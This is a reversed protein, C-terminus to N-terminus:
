AQGADLPADPKAPFVTLRTAVVSRERDIMPSYGLVVQNLIPHEQM